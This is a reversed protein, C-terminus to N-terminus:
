SNFLIFREYPGASREVNRALDRLRELAASWYQEYKAIWPTMPLTKGATMMLSDDDRSMVPKAPCTSPGRTQAAGREVTAEVRDVVDV